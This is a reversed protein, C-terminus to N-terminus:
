PQCGGGVPPFIGVHDGDRLVYDSPRMSSNVFATKVEDDPVGLREYLDHLTTGTPVEVRLPEHMVSVGAYKGLTAYLKVSVAINSDNSTM